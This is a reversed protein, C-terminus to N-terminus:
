LEFAVPDGIQLNHLSSLGANIELVYKADARPVYRTLEKDSKGPEPSVNQAIDVIKKSEDIWIIDIAFEVDKMWFTHRKNQEFVFLMGQDIALSSLKSLGKQQENQEDAIKAQVSLDRVTVQVNEKKEIQASPTSVQSTFQTPAFGRGFIIFVVIVFVLGFIVALDKKM